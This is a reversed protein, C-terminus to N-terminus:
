EEISDRGLLRGIVAHSFGRGQLFRSRRAREELTAAPAAYRRALIARAREVDSEASALAMREVTQEAIGKARLDLRIRATGYKRSLVHARLEAFREDSLQKRRELDDLLAVLAEGSEARPALKRALEMRSHERRALLRLARARLQQPTDPEEKM